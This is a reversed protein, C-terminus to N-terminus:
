GEPVVRYKAYLGESDFLEVNITDQHTKLICRIDHVARVEKTTGGPVYMAPAGPAGHIYSGGGQSLHEAYEAEDCEQVVKGQRLIKMLYVQSSRANDFYIRPIEKGAYINLSSDKANSSFLNLLKKPEKAKGEKM